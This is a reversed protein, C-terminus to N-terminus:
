LMEITSVHACYLGHESAVGAEPSALIDRVTGVLSYKERQDIFFHRYASITASIISPVGQSKCQFTLAFGLYFNM